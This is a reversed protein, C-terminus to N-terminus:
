KVICITNARVSAAAVIYKVVRDELAANILLGFLFSM